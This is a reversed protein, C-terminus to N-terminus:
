SCLRWIACENRVIVGLVAFAAGATLRLSSVMVM